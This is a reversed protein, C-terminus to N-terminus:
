SAPTPENNDGESTGPSTQSAPNGNIPSPNSDTNSIGSADTASVVAAGNEGSDTNGLGYQQILKDEFKINMVTDQKLALEDEESDGLGESPLFDNLALLLDPNGQKPEVINYQALAQDLSYAFDTQGTPNQNIALNRLQRLVDSRKDESATEVAFGILTAVDDTYSATRGDLAQIAAIVLSTQANVLNLSQALSFAAFTAPIAANPNQKIFSQLAAILSELTPNEGAADRLAQLVKPDVTLKKAQVEHNEPSTAVLVVNNQYIAVTSSLDNSNAAPKNTDQQPYDRPVRTMAQSNATIGLGIALAVAAFTRKM